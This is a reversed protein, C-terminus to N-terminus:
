NIPFSLHPILRFPNIDEHSYYYHHKIHEFETTNNVATSQYFDKLYRYLNPYESIKKYSCKFHVYYVLDFRLLTPILRIDAETMTDGLLYRNRSLINDLSQLEDFLSEVANNYAHQNKAFGARYVGNNVKNYIRENIADIQPRLEQPYFDLTNGTLQDFASNFIRIIESSENNVITKEKRDWLIPVTVNTNAKSDAMQYIEYLYKKSNINDGTSGKFDSKLEWGNNLMYPHVVSVSILPKLEKLERMILTRHAWPCAYSVYLHYRDADPTFKSHELSITDRFKSPKRDYSGSDDSTIVSSEQWIGDVLRGM